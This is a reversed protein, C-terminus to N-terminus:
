AEDSAFQRIVNRIKGGPTREIHDERRFIVVRAPDAGLLADFRSRLKVTLDQFDNCTSAVVVRVLFEDFSRQVTQVQLVDEIGRLLNFTFIGITRGDRLQITDDSRGAVDRLIPTTRGCACKGSHDLSGYDGIDYRVLPMLDNLLSTLLLRGIRGDAVREGDQDVAEIIGVNPFVHRNGEPCEAALVLHESSAYQDAVAGGFVRMLLARAEPSLRECTTIVLPISLRVGECDLLRALDVLNSTYGDLVAPKWRRLAMLYAPITAPALHYQSLVLQKGPINIRWIRNSGLPVVEKGTFSARRAGTPINYWSRFVEVSRFLELSAVRPRWVEVPTGTTGSTKTRIDSSEVSRTMFAGPNSRLQDKSLAPWTALEEWGVREPQRLAGYGPLARAISLIRQLRIDRENASYPRDYHLAEIRRMSNRADRRRGRRMHVAELGYASCMADQLVEPLVPYAREIRRRLKRVSMLIMDASM